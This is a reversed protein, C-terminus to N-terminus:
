SEEIARRAARTRYRRADYGLQGSITIPEALRPHVFNRHGGKGGRDVSGARELGRVLERIMPPM